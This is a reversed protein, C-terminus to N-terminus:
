FRYGVWVLPFFLGTPGKGIDDLGLNLAICVPSLRINFGRIDWGVGLEGRLFVDAYKGEPLRTDDSLVTMIIGGMGLRGHIFFRGRVQAVFGAHAYVSWFRIKMTIFGDFGLGVDIGRRVGISWTAGTNAFVGPLDLRIPLTVGGGLLILNTIRTKGGEAVLEAEPAGSVPESVNGDGKNLNFSISVDELFVVELDKSRAEHGLLKVAITHKGPSLGTKVPTQGISEDSGDVFVDAGAPVSSVLVQSPMQRITELYSAAKESKQGGQKIYKQYYAAAQKYRGMNDYSRAINYINSTNPVLDQAATFEEVALEYEGEKYHALGQSAHKEALLLADEASLKEEDAACPLAVLVIAMAVPLPCIAPLRKM